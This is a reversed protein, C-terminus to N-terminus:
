QKTKFVTIKYKDLHKIATEKFFNINKTFDAKMAKLEREAEYVCQTWVFGTDQLKRLDELTMFVSNNEDDFAWEISPIESNRILAQIATSLLTDDKGVRLKQHYTKGDSHLYRFPGELVKPKWSNIRNFWETKQEEETASEKWIHLEKDWVKKLLNEPAPVTIIKGDAVYEGDQLLEIEGELIREERTKNRLEGSYDICPYDYKESSVVMNKKNFGPYCGQPNTKFEELTYNLTDLLKIESVNKQYIYTLNSM